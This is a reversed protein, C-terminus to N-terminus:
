FFGNYKSSNGLSYTSKCCLSVSNFVLSFYRNSLLVAVHEVEDASGLGGQVVGEEDPAVDGIGLELLLKVPLSWGNEGGRRACMLTYRGLWWYVTTHIDRFHSQHNQFILGPYCVRQTHPVPPVSHPFFAQQVFYLHLTKYKQINAARSIIDQWSVIELWFQTNVLCIKLNSSM